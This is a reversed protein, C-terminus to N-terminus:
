HKKGCANVRMYHPTLNRNGDSRVVHYKGMVLTGATLMEGIKSKAQTKRLNWLKELQERTKWGPPAIVSPIADRWFEDWQESTRESKLVKM